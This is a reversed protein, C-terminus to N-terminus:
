NDESLQRKIENLRNELAEAQRKLIEKRDAPAYQFSYYGPRFNFCRRIGMGCGYNLGCIGAGRGTL